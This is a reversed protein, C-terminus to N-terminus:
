SGTWIVNLLQTYVPTMTKVMEMVQVEVISQLNTRIPMMKGNVMIEKDLPIANNLGSNSIRISYLNSKHIHTGRLKYLGKMVEIFEYEKLIDNFDPDTTVYKYSLYPVESALGIKNYIRRGTQTLTERNYNPEYYNDYMSKTKFPNVYIKFLSDDVNESIKGSFEPQYTLSQELIYSFPISDPNGERMAYVMNDSTYSPGFCVLEGDIMTGYVWHMDEMKPEFQNIILDPIQASLEGSPTSGPYRYTVMEHPPFHYDMSDTQKKTELAYSTPITTEKCLSFTSDGFQVMSIINSPTANLEIDVSQRGNYVAPNMVSYDREFLDSNYMITDGSTSTISNLLNGHQGFVYMGSYDYDDTILDMALQKSTPGATIQNLKLIQKSM